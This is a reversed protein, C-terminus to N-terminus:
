VLGRATLEENFSQTTMNYAGYYIIGATFPPSNVRFHNFWRM